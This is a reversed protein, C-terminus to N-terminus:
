FVRQNATFVYDSGPKGQSPSNLPNSAPDTLGGAGGNVRLQFMQGAKLTGGFALTVTHAADDYKVSSVGVGRGVIVPRAGHKTRRGLSLLNVAYNAMNGASTSALSENYSIVLGTIKNRRGTQVMVGSVVPGAVIAPQSSTQTTAQSGQGTSQTSLPTTQGNQSTSQGNQSTPQGNQLTVQVNQFNPQVNQAKAADIAAQVKAAYAAYEAFPNAPV